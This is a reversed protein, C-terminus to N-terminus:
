SWGASFFINLRVGKSLLLDDIDFGRGAIVSDGTELVVSTLSASLETIQYDYVHGGCVNTLFTVFGDSSIAM